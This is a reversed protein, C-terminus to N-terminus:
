GGTKKGLVYGLAVGLFGAVTSEMKGHWALIVASLIVIASLISQLTMGLKWSEHQRKLVEKKEEAAGVLTANQLTKWLDLLGKAIEHGKDTNLYDFLSFPPAMEEEQEEPPLVEATEKNGQKCDAVLSANEL